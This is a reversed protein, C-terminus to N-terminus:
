RMLAHHMPGQSGSGLSMGKSKHLLQTLWIKAKCVAEYVDKNPDKALFAAIASAMTCGTGHVNTTDAVRAARIIHCSKGDFLVDTANLADEKEGHKDGGKILVCKPGLKHLEYAAGKMDEVTVVQFGLLHEAEKINPTIVTALPLLQTRYSEVADPQLLAHGSTSIMVPDVVVQQVGYQKLKAAVAEVIGKTGLMGTKVADAGLDGLVSDLQQAVFDADLMHVGQVGQTNQATIATVVSMGFSDLAAFTKLDAQIGAGGGSDSGAVTLLRVPTESQGLPTEVQLQVDSTTEIDVSMIAM